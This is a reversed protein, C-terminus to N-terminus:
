PEVPLSKAYPLSMDEESGGPKEWSICAHEFSFLKSELNRACAFRHFRAYDWM